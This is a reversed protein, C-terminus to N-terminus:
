VPLSLAAELHAECRHPRHNISPFACRGTHLGRSSTPSAMRNQQTSAWAIDVAILRFPTSSTCSRTEVHESRLMETTTESLVDVLGRTVLSVFVVYRLLLTVLWRCGLDSYIHLAQAVASSCFSIGARVSFMYLFWVLSHSKKFLLQSCATKLDFLSPSHNLVILHM